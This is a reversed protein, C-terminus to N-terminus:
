HFITNSLHILPFFHLTMPCFDIQLKHINIPKLFFLIENFALYFISKLDKGQFDYVFKCFKMAYIQIFLYSVYEHDVWLSVVTM